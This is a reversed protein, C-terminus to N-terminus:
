NNKNYKRQYLGPQYPARRAPCNEWPCLQCSEFRQETQFRIGSVSMSPIMLLEGTLEIGTAAKVDGLLKFLPKQEQIPWDLISGPNMMSTQGPLFKEELHNEFARLAQGLAVGKIAEIWHRALRDTYSKEWNELEMGCTAAFPFARHAKELNVALVRSKFEIGEMVVHDYGRSEIFAVKYIARPKAITRAEEILKELDEYDRDGKQVHLLEILQVPDVNFPIRDLLIPETFNRGSGTFKM